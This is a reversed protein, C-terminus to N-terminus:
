CLAEYSSLFFQNQVSSRAVAASLFGDGAAFGVNVFAAATDARALRGASGVAIGASLGGAARASRM